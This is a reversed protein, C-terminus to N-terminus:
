TILRSIEELASNKREVDKELEKIFLGGAVRAKERELFGRVEDKNEVLKKLILSKDKGYCSERLAQEEGDQAPDLYEKLKELHAINKKINEGINWRATQNMSVPTAIVLPLSNIDQSIEKAYELCSNCWEKLRKEDEPTLPSNIPLEHISYKKWDAFLVAKTSDYGRSKSFVEEERETIKQIEPDKGDWREVIRERQDVIRREIVHHVPAAALYIIGGVAAVMLGAIALPPFLVGLLGIAVGGGTLALGGVGLGFFLRGLLKSKPFKSHHQLLRGEARGIADGVSASEGMRLLNAAVILRVAMQKDRDRSSFWEKSLEQDVFVNYEHKMDRINHVLDELNNGTVDIKYANKLGEKIKELRKQSVIPASVRKVARKKMDASVSVKGPSVKEFINTSLDRKESLSIVPIDVRKQLEPPGGVQAM